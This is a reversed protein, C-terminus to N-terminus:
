ELLINDIITNLNEVIKSEYLNKIEMVKRIINRDLKQKGAIFNKLYLRNMVIFGHDREAQIKHQEDNAKSISLSIKNLLDDINKEKWNKQINNGQRKANYNGIVINEKEINSNNDIRRKIEVSARANYTNQPFRAAPHDITLNVRYDWQQLMGKVLPGLAIIFPKQGMNYIKMLNYKKNFEEKAIKLNIQGKTTNLYKKLEGSKPEVIIEGNPSIMNLLDTIFAGYYRKLPGDFVNKLKTSCQETHFIGYDKVKISQNMGVVIVGPNILEYENDIRTKNKVDKASTGSGWIAWSSDHGFMKKVEFNIQEKDIKYYELLMKNLVNM